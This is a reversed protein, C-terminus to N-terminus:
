VIYPMPVPVIFRGGTDRYPQNKQLLEEKFNWPLLLFYDPPVKMAIAEDIVPLHMGPTYLDIKLPAKEAAYELLDTGIQCYNLLTNGKAPAGYAALRRGQFKLDRLLGVLDTKLAVVRKAFDQYPGLRDWGKKHE